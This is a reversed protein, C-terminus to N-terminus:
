GGEVRPILFVEAEAPIPQTWDDRFIRGDISVAIGRDMIAQMNPYRELLVTIMEGIDEAQLELTEEADNGVRFASSLRVQM